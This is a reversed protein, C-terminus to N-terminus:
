QTCSQNYDAEALASIASRAIIIGPRGQRVAADLGANLRAFAALLGARVIRGEVTLAVADLVYEGVFLRIALLRRQIM